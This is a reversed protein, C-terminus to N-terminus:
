KANGDRIGTFPEMAALLTDFDYSGDHRVGNLFLGPTGYVGNQVGTKFDERVRPLYMESKLERAFRDMDLDIRQAYALLDKRELSQWNEFLVDHMEWFKGQAGAAEAAQAALEAHPHLRAFAYHRFVFRMKDGLRAELRGIIWYAEACGPCEYDGYEVLTVAARRSGRLHESERLPLLDLAPKGSTM